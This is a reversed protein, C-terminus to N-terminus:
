LQSVMLQRSAEKDVEDVRTIPSEHCVSERMRTNEMLRGAALAAAAATVHRHHM